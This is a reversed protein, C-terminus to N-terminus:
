AHAELRIAARTRDTVRFRESTAVGPIWAVEGACVVVPISARRARPVRRDVFLDQLSRTHGRMGLPAMRDGPRWARVELPGTAALVGDRPVPESVRASVTWAGFRAEGPVPLAVTAPVAPPPEAGARARVVGDAVVLDIGAGAAVAAGEPAALVDGLREAAGPAFRGGAAEEALRVLVLRALARPLAALRDVAIRDGGELVAAVADDLVAAEDRLLAATRLVNAEAGPHVDRLAALLGHRVRSRAYAADANSADERWPLGRARCWGATEERTVGAALLPRVVAGAREAMGLLARRGPSAALRYLVTEAQDTATHGTAITGGLRAAEGYRVERAWAQVNGRAPPRERHVDLTVGLRECVAACAREDEDAADRLGYNVHLARVDAGLGVTVDLLCVSDRGGSLLVVVREGAGLLGTARVRELLDTM